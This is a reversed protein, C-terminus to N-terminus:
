RSQSSVGQSITAPRRASVTAESYLRGYREMMEEVSHERRVWEARKWLDMYNQATGHRPDQLVEELSRAGDRPSELAYQLSVGNLFRHGPIASLVAPLGSGIAELPGLPMGEFKSSSMYVDAATVWSLPATSAGVLVIRERAPADELCAVIREREGPEAEPGVIVLVSRSRVTADLERWVKLAERQGKISDLRAMYLIWNDGAFPELQARLPSSQQALL